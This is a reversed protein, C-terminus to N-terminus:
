IDRLVYDCLLVPLCVANLSLQPLTWVYDPSLYMKSFMKTVKM